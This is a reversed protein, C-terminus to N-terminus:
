ILFNLYLVIILLFGSMMGAIVDFLKTSKGLQELYLKLSTFAYLIGALITPIDLVGNLISITPSDYGRSVMLSSFLHTGTLILFFLLSIKKVNLVTEM